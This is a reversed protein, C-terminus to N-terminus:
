TWRLSKIRSTFPFPGTWKAATNVMELPKGNSAKYRKLTWSTVVGGRNSFVIHYLDTDLFFFDERQASVPALPAAPAQPKAEAPAPAAAAAPAAAPASKNTAPPPATSKFFYPSVFMVVGMLLFAILLRLETSLEKKQPQTPTTGGNGSEAM